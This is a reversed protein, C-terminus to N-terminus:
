PCRRSGSPRRGGAPHRGPLSDGKETLTDLDEGLRARTREIDAKVEDPKRGM